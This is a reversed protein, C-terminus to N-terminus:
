RRRKRDRGRRRKDEGDMRPVLVNKCFHLISMKSTASFKSDDFDWHAITIEGAVGSRAKVLGRDAANWNEFDRSWITLFPDDYVFLMQDPSLPGKRLLQRMTSEEIEKRNVWLVSADYLIMGGLVSVACFIAFNRIKRSEM